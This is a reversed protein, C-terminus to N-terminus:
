KLYVDGLGITEKLDEFSFTMVIMKIKFLLRSAEEQLLLIGKELVWKLIIHMKGLQIDRFRPYLFLQIAQDKNGGFDLEAIQHFTDGSYTCEWTLYHLYGRALEELQSDSDGELYKSNAIKMTLTQTAM